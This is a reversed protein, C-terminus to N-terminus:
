KGMLNDIKLKELEQDMKDSYSDRVKSLYKLDDGSFFVYSLNSCIHVDNNKIIKKIGGYWLKLFDSSVFFILKTKKILNDMEKKINVM